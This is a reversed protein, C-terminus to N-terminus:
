GARQMLPSATAGEADPRMSVPPALIEALVLAKRLSAIAEPTTARDISVRTGRAVAVSGPASPALPAIPALPQPAIAYAGTSAAPGQLLKEALTPSEPQRQPPRASQQKKQKRQEQRQAPKARQPQTAQPRPVPQGAPTIPRPQFPRSAPAVPPRSPAAQGPRQPVAPAPGSRSMQELEARRRQAIEQLRRRADDHSAPGAAAVPAPAQILPSGEATRGTRLADDERARKAARIKAEERKQAILKVLWSIISISILIGWIIIQIYNTNGGGSQALLSEM